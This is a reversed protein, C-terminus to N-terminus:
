DDGLLTQLEIAFLEPGLFKNIRKLEIGNPSVLRIDPLGEVDSKKSVDPEEDTDIKRVICQKLLMAVKGNAFTEKEMRKCPVCWSAYFDLVVPKQEQKARAFLDPFLDVYNVTRRKVYQQDGTVINASYGAKAIVAILDDAKSKALDFIVVFEDRDLFM